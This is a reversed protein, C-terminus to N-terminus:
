KSMVLMCGTRNAPPQHSTSIQESLFTSSAPQQHSTQESLFTSSAPPQYASRVPQYDSCSLTSDCTDCYLVNWEQRKSISIYRKKCAWVKVCVEINPADDIHSVGWSGVHEAGGRKRETSYTWTSQDNCSERDGIPRDRTVTCSNPASTPLQYHKRGAPTM